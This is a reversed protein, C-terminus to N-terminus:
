QEFCYLHFYNSCSVVANTDYYVSTAASWETAKYTAGVTGKAGYDTTAWSNGAADECGATFAGLRTGTWVGVPRSAVSAGLEDRDISHTLSANLEAFSLVALTGDLLYWPAVDTMRDTAHKTVGGVVGSM